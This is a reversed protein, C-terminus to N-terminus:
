PNFQVCHSIIEHLVVCNFASWCSLTIQLKSLNEDVAFSNPIWFICEGHSNNCCWLPSYTFASVVPRHFNCFGWIYAGPLCISAAASMCTLSYVNKKKFTATYSVKRHSMIQGDMLMQYSIRKSSLLFVKVVQFHPWLYISVNLCNSWAVFIEGTLFMPPILFPLGVATSCFLMEMQLAM